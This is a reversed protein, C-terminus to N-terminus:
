PHLLKYTEMLMWDKHILLKKTVIYSLITPSKIGIEKSLKVLSRGLKCVQKTKLNIIETERWKKIKDGGKFNLSVWGNLSYKRGLALAVINHVSMNNAAAFKHMNNIRVRKGEPNILYVYKRRKRRKKM